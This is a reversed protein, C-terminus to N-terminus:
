PSGYLARTHSSTKSVLDIWWVGEEQLEDDMKKQLVFFHFPWFLTFSELLYAGGPVVKSRKSDRQFFRVVSM